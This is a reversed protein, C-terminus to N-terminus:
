DTLLGFMCFQIILLKTNKLLFILEYPTKSPFSHDNAIYRIPEVQTIAHLVCTYINAYLLLFM